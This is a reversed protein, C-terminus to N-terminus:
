SFLGPDTAPTYAPIVQGLDAVGLWRAASAFVDRFDVTYRLDRGENLASRSLGPWTGHVRGGRVSGGLFLGCHAFGHDTGMSGNQAATRGFETTVMLLVDDIRGGLDRRFAVLAASLNTYEANNAALQNAHTDFSGPVNVYICRTGLDAKILQAAQRLGAGMTGAPYVAGNSPGTQLAPTRRITDIASFVARGSEYVASGAGAYATRLLQDAESSWTAAGSGAVVSFSALDQLVLDAHPGLVSRPTRSALAVLQMVDEGPIQRAVRELWGDHVAKDGPSATDMFDQADFHSRTLRANGITPHLALVGESYLDRLPALRPHLGFFGDLDRVGDAASLAIGPRLAFYDGDRYPVCLNLGDAGGRLFVQVLVRSGADAAEAARTLLTSPAFGLGVAAVGAGKIFIRRSPDFAV